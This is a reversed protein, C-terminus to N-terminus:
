DHWEIKLQVEFSNQHNSISLSAKEGYILALRKRVNELGIGGYEAKKMEESPSKNNSIELSLSHQDSQLDLSVFNGEKAKLGHKFSNEILPLFLLPAITREEDEIQIKIDIAVQESLRLGQLKIYHKLAEVEKHLPVQEDAVEYIVYRMLGSLELISKPTSDDKKLALAYISNLSNFLFHPNIQSKLSNLELHLREKEVEQLLYWSRSLKLLTSLFLYFAFIGALVMWETFSVMYFESTLAPILIDFVLDHLAMATVLLLAALLLFLGYREKLLLRPILIQLNLYVMVALPLHFFISYVFDIFELHNSISFYAGIAYISLVWFILHQLWKIRILKNLVSM